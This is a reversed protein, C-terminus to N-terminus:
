EIKLIRLLGVALHVSSLFNNNSILMYEKYSSALNSILISISVSRPWKDTTQWAPHDIQSSRCLGHKITFYNPFYYDSHSSYSSPYIM